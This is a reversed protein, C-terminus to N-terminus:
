FSQSESASSNRTGAQAMVSDAVYIPAGHALALAVADSPRADIAHHGRVHLSGIYAHDRISDIQVRELTADLERLTADMLDMSLPRVYKEGRLHLSIALGESSGVYMTIAKDDDGVRVAYEAGLPTVSLVQMRQYGEPSTTPTGTATPHTRTMLFASAGLAVISVLLLHRPTEALLM